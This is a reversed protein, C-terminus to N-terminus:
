YTRLLLNSDVFTVKESSLKENCYGNAELEFASIHSWKSFLCEFYFLSVISTESKHIDLNEKPYMFLPVKLSNIDPENRVDHMLPIEGGPEGLGHDAFFLYKGDSESIFNILEKQLTDFYLVSNDYENLLKNEGTFTNYSDPYRDSFNLHSGYFHLIILTKEQVSDIVSKLKFLLESDYFKGANDESLFITADSQEAIASVSFDWHSTKAHNSIWIVKFGADKALNVISKSLDQGNSNLTLTAPLSTWTNTGASYSNRFLLINPLIKNLNPTTNRKYGYVSLNDARLSEGIGIVLLEKEKGNYTVNTWSSTTFQQKTIFSITDVIGKVSSLVPLQKSVETEIFYEFYIWWDSYGRAYGTKIYNDFRDASFSSRISVFSPLFVYVVGIGIILFKSKGVEIRPALWVIFTFASVVLLYPLYFLVFTIAENISTSYVSMILSISLHGGFVMDSFLHFGLLLSFALRFARGLPLLLLGFIVLSQMFSAYLGHFISYDIVYRNIYLSYIAIALPLYLARPKINM